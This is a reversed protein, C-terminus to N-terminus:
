IQVIIYQKIYMLFACQCIQGLLSFQQSRVLIQVQLFVSPPGALRERRKYMIDLSVGTGKPVNDVNLKNNYWYKNYKYCLM